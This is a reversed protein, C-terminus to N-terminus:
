KKMIHLISRAADEGIISKVTSRVKKKTVYYNDIITNCLIKFAESEKEPETFVEFIISKNSIRPCIFREHNQIFEDKSAASIYEFGLDEAMHKVLNRSQRGFHGGAAIYEDTDNGFKAGQHNFNKFEIGCGNNVLLIRVNNSFHRNGISNLDYFFALDGMVGFYLKNKQILSAGLLTSIAGDIGFGGVNSYASVSSTLPFVNWARLSNLIGFHIVSNAPIKASITKAIWWNSFPLEGVSSWANEICTLCEKLYSDDHKKDSTYYKFFDFENMEFLCTLKKYHDCYKGDTSVRWVSKPFITDSAFYSGSMGGIHILLDVNMIDFECKKQFGLIGNCVEYKGRYNSTHDCFAVANNSKCFEDIINSQEETMKSHSGIFIAIRGSPIEPLQSEYNYYSISCEKPLEKVSYDENYTTTLNIHSPGGGHQKLAIIAKNIKVNCDWEDVEDKITQLHVSEVLIDSPHKSRDTVQPILHGLRSNDQSSTVVLIPLHRYFAETLAPMYNRSSTAGTCSLVVPEGSEESIGCAM